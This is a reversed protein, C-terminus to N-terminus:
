KIDSKYLNDIETKPVYIYNGIQRMPISFKRIHMYISSEDIHYKKEIQSITYCDKPELSYTRPVPKSAEERAKKRKPFMGDLDTRKIRTLRAGINIYPIRGLRMLRYLTNREVGYIAVAEKISLYERIDAISDALADLKAQEQAM